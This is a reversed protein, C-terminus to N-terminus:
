RHLGACLREVLERDAQVHLEITTMQRSDGTPLNSVVHGKTM